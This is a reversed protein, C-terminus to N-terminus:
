GVRVVISQIPRRVPASAAPMFRPWSSPRAMAVCRAAEAELTSALPAIALGRTNAAMTASLTETTTLGVIGIRVGAVPVLVSPKVNPWDVPTGTSQDLINAALFPFRAEAARAKLAGRPDDEATRPTASEGM